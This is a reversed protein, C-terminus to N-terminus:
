ADWFPVETRRWLCFNPWLGKQQCNACGIRDIGGFTYPKAKGASVDQPPSLPLM